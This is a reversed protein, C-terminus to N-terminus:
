RKLQEVMEKAEDLSSDLSYAIEYAKLAEEKQGLDFLTNAYNFHHPAYSDDLEIAKQHYKVALENEGLQHVINALIGYAMDDSEDLTVLKEYANQAEKYAEQKLYMTGQRVIVQANDAELIEASDLAKKAEEFDEKELAEDALKLLQEMRTPEIKPRSFTKDPRNIGGIHEDPLKAEFDVGRKPHEGSLLQKFFLYFIVGSLILLLLQFTTM